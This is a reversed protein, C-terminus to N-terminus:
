LFRYEVRLEKVTGPGTKEYEQISIVKRPMYFLKQSRGSWRGKKQTEIYISKVKGNEDNASIQLKRTFMNPDNAEYYFNHTMTADDAFKSFDYKGLFKKDSIDTAFFVRFIPAWDLDYASVYASDVKGNLYVFKQLGFPQGHYLNWQDQTFQKISFYTGDEETATAEEPKTASPKCSIFCIALIVTFWYSYRYM